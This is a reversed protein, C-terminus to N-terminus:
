ARLVVSADRAIESFLENVKVGVTKSTKYVVDAFSDLRKHDRLQGVDLFGFHPLHFRGGAAMTSREERDPLIHSSEGSLARKRMARLVDPVSARNVKDILWGPINSGPDTLIEYTVSVGDATLSGDRNKKSPQITWGGDNALLRVVGKKPKPGVNETDLTWRSEFGKKRNNKTEIRITYDRNKVVPATVVGYVYFTASGDTLKGRTKLVKHKGVYPVFNAYEDLDAVARWFNLPSVDEYTVMARIEKIPNERADDERTWVEIGDKTTTQKKFKKDSTNKKETTNRRFGNGSKKTKKKKNAGSGDLADDDDVSSSFTPSLNPAASLVKAAERKKKKTETITTQRRPHRPQPRIKATATVTKGDGDGSKKKKQFWWFAAAAAAANEATTGNSGTEM